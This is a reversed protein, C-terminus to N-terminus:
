SAVCYAAATHEEWMRDMNTVHRSRLLPATAHHSQVFLLVGTTPGPDLAIEDVHNSTPCSPLDAWVSLVGDLYAVAGAPFTFARAMRAM